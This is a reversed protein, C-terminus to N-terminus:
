KGDATPSSGFQTPLGKGLGFDSLLHIRVNGPCVAVTTKTVSSVRDLSCGFDDPESRM